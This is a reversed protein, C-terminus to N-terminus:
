PVASSSNSTDVLCRCDLSRRIRPVLWYRYHRGRRDHIRRSADVTLGAYVHGVLDRRTGFDGDHTHALEEDEVAHEVVGVPKEEHSGYTEEPTSTM